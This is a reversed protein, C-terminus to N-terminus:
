LRALHDPLPLSNNGPPPPAASLTHWYLIPGRTKRTAELAAALGKATYTLDMRLGAQEGTSAAQRAAETAMGYGDGVYRHSLRIAPLRIEPVRPDLARMNRHTAAMLKEVTDRTCVRFPGHNAPMVAVGHVPIHLDCLAFGLTLGALTGGSGTACYIAAPRPLEGAEIQGALEFAAKVYAIAGTPTSAGAFLFCNNRDLRRPDLQWATHTLFLPGIRRLRAGQAAMARLNERVEPTLPQDFLLIECELNLRACYIATALGHHTGLGGLTIVRKKGQKQAKGLVYELKRTKNGGYIESSLDDRKVWLNPAVGALQEVPTPTATLECRSLLKELGSYFM